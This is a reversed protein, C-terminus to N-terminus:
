GSSAAVAKRACSLSGLCAGDDTVIMAELGAQRVLRLGTEPGLVMLATAWADATLCDPAL